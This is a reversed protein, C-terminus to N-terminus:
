KCTKPDPPESIPAAEPIPLSQQTVTDAAPDSYFQQMHLPQLIGAELSVQELSIYGIYIGWDSQLFIYFGIWCSFNYPWNFFYPIIIELEFIFNNWYKRLVKFYLIVNLFIRCNGACYFRGFRVFYIVAKLLIHHSIM